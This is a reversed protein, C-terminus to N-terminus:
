FLRTVGFTVPPPPGGEQSVFFPVSHIVDVEAFGAQFDRADAEATHAVADRGCARQTWAAVGPGEVLGFALGEEFLGKVEADVEEVGGVDVGYAGALLDEAAEEFGVGFAFVGNDGGLEEVCHAVVGVGLTEAALLDEEFEILAELAELGVVDVEVLDVAPVVVGRDFLGHFREVIDDFGAFDAVDSGRGHVGPLEGLREVYGVEVAPGAEDGHLVV